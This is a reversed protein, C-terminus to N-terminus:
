REGVARVHHRHVDNAGALFSCRTSASRASASRPACPGTARGTSCTTSRATEPSGAGRPVAVRVPARLHHGALLVAPFFPNPVEYGFAPDGVAPMPAARRRALGHVLRAAVGVSVDAPDFPGTSGSRTSRPSAASRPWCGRRCSSSRARHGQGHVDAVAARRRRQGREPGARPVPHAQPARPAGPARRAAGRHRGPRDPHPDRLAPQHHRHGPFEGGFLLSAMWTGVLPISLMISYAIRLGTGSLQDDLLSYGAFGNVIALLLLTVGIMWNLERPRRFAGTFFIRMLHVVIPPSSCCRPGTTSRACSWAPGCTSASARARVRLGASMEVGQLPAYSGDYVVEDHEPAFFFTLYIGTLSWSRRLLLPRARRAHVVLPRPVGQELAAAPSRRRRARAATTSVLPRAHRARPAM